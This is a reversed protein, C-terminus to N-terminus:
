KQVCGTGPVWKTTNADCCDSGFCKGSQDGVPIYTATNLTEPIEIQGEPYNIGVFTLVYSCLSRVYTSFWKIVVFVLIFLFFLKYNSINILFFGIICGKVICIYLKNKYTNSYDSVQQKSAANELVEPESKNKLDTIKSDLDTIIKNCKILEKKVDSDIQLLSTNIDNIQNLGGQYKTAADTSKNKMIYYQMITDLKNVFGTSATSVKEKFFSPPQLKMEKDLKDDNFFYM